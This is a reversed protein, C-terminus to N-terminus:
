EVIWSTFDEEDTSIQVSFAWRALQWCESELHVVRLARTQRDQGNENIGACRELFPCLISVAATLISPELEERYPDYTHKIKLASFSHM